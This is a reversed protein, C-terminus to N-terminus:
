QVVNLDNFYLVHLWITGVLDGSYDNRYSLWVYDRTNSNGTSSGGAVVHWTVWDKNHNWSIFFLATIPFEKGLQVLQTLPRGLSATTKAVIDLRVTYM